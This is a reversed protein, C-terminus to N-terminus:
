IDPPTSQPDPYKARVEHAGPGVHAPSAKPGTRAPGNAAGIFSIGLTSNELESADASQVGLDAAPARACPPASNTPRGPRTEPAPTPRTDAPRRARPRSLPALAAPRGAAHARRCLQAHVPTAAPRHCRRRRTPHRESTSSARAARNPPALTACARATLATGHDSGTIIERLGRNQIQLETAQELFDTLGDWPDDAALAREALEVLHDLREEFLAEILQRKDPFRRYATGVGVGAHHAIEHLGVSLGNAAFLEAAAALIRGRNRAADARLLTDTTRLDASLGRRSRVAAPPSTAPVAPNM